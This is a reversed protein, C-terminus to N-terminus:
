AAGHCRKYKKGGGCPCPGSPSPDNTPPRPTARGLGGGSSSGSSYVGGRVLGMGGCKPCTGATSGSMSVGSLSDGLVIGSSFVAGCNTCVAPVAPM